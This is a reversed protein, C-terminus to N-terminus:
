SLYLVQFLVKRPTLEMPAQAPHNRESQKASLDRDGRSGYQCTNVMVLHTVDRSSVNLPASPFVLLVLAGWPSGTSPSWPSTPPPPARANRASEEYELLPLIKAPCTLDDQIKRMFLLGTKCKDLSINHM